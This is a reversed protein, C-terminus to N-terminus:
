ARVLVGGCMCVSVCERVHVSIIGQMILLFGMCMLSILNHYPDKNM